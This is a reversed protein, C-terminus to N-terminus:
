WVYNIGLDDWRQELVLAHLNNARQKAAIYADDGIVNRYYDYLTEAGDCEPPSTACGAKFHKDTDCEMGFRCGLLKWGYTNSDSTDELISYYEAFSGVMAFVEPQHSEMAEILFEAPSYPLEDRDIYERNIYYDIVVRAKSQPHGALAAQFLLQGWGPFNHLESVLPKCKEFVSVGVNVDTEHRSERLKTELEEKTESANIEKQFLSCTSLADHVRVMAEVEGAQARDWYKQVFDLWNDTELYEALIPHMANDATASSDGAGPLPEVTMDASDSDSTSAPAAATIQATSQEAAEQEALHRSITNSVTAIVMILLAVITLSIFFPSKLIRKM